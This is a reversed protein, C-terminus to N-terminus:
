KLVYKLPMEIWGNVRPFPVARYVARISASDLIEYGSSKLVEMTEVDGAANLKFRLRVVGEMGRERALRPYSKTREIATVITAWDEPAIVGRPGNEELVADMTRSRGDISSIANKSSPEGGEVPVLSSPEQVAVSEQPVMMLHKASLEGANTVLVRQKPANSDHVVEGGRGGPSVLSVTIANPGPKLMGGAYQAVAIAAGFVLLHAAFSFCISNRFTM